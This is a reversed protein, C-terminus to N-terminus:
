PSRIQLYVKKQPWPQSFEAFQSAHSQFNGVQAVFARGHGRLHGDCLTQVLNEEQQLQIGGNIPTPRSSSRFLQFFGGFIAFIQVVFTKNSGRVPKVPSSSTERAYDPGDPLRTSILPWDFMKYIDIGPIIVNKEFLYINKIFVDLKEM